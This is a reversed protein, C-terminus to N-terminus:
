EERLALIPDVRMARRAPIYSALSAVALLIAATGAFTTPDTAKIGFLLKELLRTLAFAGAAGIAIGPWLSLRHPPLNHSAARFIKPFLLPKILKYNKLDPVDDSCYDLLNIHSEILEDMRHPELM